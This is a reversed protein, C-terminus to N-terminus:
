GQETNDTNGSRWDKASSSPVLILIRHPYAALIPKRQRPITKGCRRDILLKLAARMGRGQDGSAFADNRNVRRQRFRDALGSSGRARLEDLRPFQRPASETRELATNRQDVGDRM